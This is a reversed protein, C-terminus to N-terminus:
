TYAERYAQGLQEYPSSPRHRTGGFGNIFDELHEKAVEGWGEAQALTSSPFGFSMAPHAGLPCCCGPAFESMQAIRKGAARANTVVTALKKQFAVFDGAGTIAPVSM